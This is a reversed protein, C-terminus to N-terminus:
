SSVRNHILTLFNTVTLLSIDYNTIHTKHNYKTCLLTSADICLFSTYAYKETTDNTLEITYEYVSYASVSLGMPWWEALLCSQMCRKMTIGSDHRSRKQAVRDPEESKLFMQFSTPSGYTCHQQNANYWLM